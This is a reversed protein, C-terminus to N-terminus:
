WGLWWRVRRVLDHPPRPPNLDWLSYHIVRGNKDFTVDIGSGRAWWWRRRVRPAPPPIPRGAQVWENTDQREMQQVELLARGREARLSGVADSPSVFWDPRRWIAPRYDGAPCGLITVVEAETMGLRLQRFQDEGFRPGLHWRLLVVFGALPLALLLCLLVRRATKM